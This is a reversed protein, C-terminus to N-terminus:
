EVERDDGGENPGGSTLSVQGESSPRKENMSRSEDINPPGVTAGPVKTERSVAPLELPEGSEPHFRPAEGELLIEGLRHDPLSRLYAVVADSTNLSGEAERIRAQVEIAKLAGRLPRHILDLRARLEKLIKEIPGHNPLPNAQEFVHVRYRQVAYERMVEEVDPSTGVPVPASDWASAEGESLLSRVIPQASYMGHKANAGAVTVDKGLHELAGTM